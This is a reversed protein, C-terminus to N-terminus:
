LAMGTRYSSLTFVTKGNNKIVITISQLEFGARGAPTVTNDSVSVEVAYGTSALHAPINIVEYRKEPNEADYRFVPIYEQSKIHEVQSKALSEAIVKEQSLMVARSTTTLGNLFAVGIIGLLALGILTEILGIGKQEQFLKFKGKLPWGM